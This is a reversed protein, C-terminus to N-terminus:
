LICTEVDQRRGAATMSQRATRCEAEIDERVILCKWNTHTGAEFSVPATM